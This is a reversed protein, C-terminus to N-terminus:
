LWQKFEFLFYQLGPTFEFLLCQRCRRGFGNRVKWRAPSVVTFDNVGYKSAPVGNAYRLIAEARTIVLIAGGGGGRRASGGCGGLALAGDFSSKIKKPIKPACKEIHRSITYSHEKENKM